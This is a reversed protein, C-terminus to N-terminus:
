FIADSLDAYRHRIYKSQMYPTPHPQHYINQRELKAARISKTSGFPM